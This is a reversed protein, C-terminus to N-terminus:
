LKGGSFTFGGESFGLAIFNVATGGQKIRCIFLSTMAVGTRVGAHCDEQMTHRVKFRKLPRVRFRRGISMEAGPGYEAGEACGKVGFLPERVTESPM